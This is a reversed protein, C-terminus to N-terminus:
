QKATDFEQNHILGITSYNQAQFYKEPCSTTHICIVSILM